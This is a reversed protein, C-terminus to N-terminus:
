RMIQRIVPIFHVVCEDFLTSDDIVIANVREMITNARTFKKLGISFMNWYSFTQSSGTIHRVICKEVWDTWTKAELKLLKVAQDDEKDKISKISAMLNCADEYTM